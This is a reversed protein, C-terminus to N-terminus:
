AKVTDSALAALEDLQDQAMGRSWEDVKDGDMNQMLMKVIEGLVWKEIKAGFLRDKLWALIGCNTILVTAGSSHDGVAAICATRYVVRVIDDQVKRPLAPSWTLSLLREYVGRSRLLSIDTNTVIACSLWQTVWAAETWYVSTEHLINTDPQELLTKNLWYDALKHPKWSPDKLLFRNLKPYMIHTPDGALIKLAHTAFSGVLYPLSSESITTEKRVTELLEGFLLSLQPKAEHNSTTLIQSISQISTFAQHRVEPYQSCLCLILKELHGDQILEEIGLNRWRQLEPRNDSESPPPTLLDPNEIVQSKSTVDKTPLGAVQVPLAPAKPIKVAGKPVSPLKNDGDEIRARIKRITDTDEGIKSLAHLYRALWMLFNDQADVPLRSIFASQEMCAISMLSIPLNETEGTLGDLIDLYAIPRRVIRSTCEEIFAYVEDSAEFDDSPSLSALLADVASKDTTAQLIGRGAILLALLQRAETRSAPSIAQNNCYMLLTTFPLQPQSQKQWWYPGTSHRALRLLHQLQLDQIPDSLSATRSYATSRQLHSTLTVAIDATDEGVSDPITDVYIQRLRLYAEKLLHQDDTCAKSAQVIDKMTPLRQQIEFTIDRAADRYAAADGNHQSADELMRLVKALKRISAIMIQLSLHSVLSSNQNLCRTLVKQTLPAPLVNEVMTTVSPPTRKYTTAAGFHAPIAIGVLPFFYSAFGIWTNTLKPDMSLTGALQISYHSVLEPAARFTALILNREDLDAHPRLSMIFKSLIQNRAMNSQRSIDERDERDGEDGNAHFAYWSSPLLVGLDQTTCLRNLFIFVQQRRTTPLTGELIQQEGMDARAADLVATLSRDSCIASKYKRPVDADQLIYTAVGKLIDRVVPLPDNKLHEFLTRFLNRFSAIQIKNQTPQYRLNALLYRVANSRVSQKRKDEDGTARHMKLNRDLFKTNFTSDQRAFVQAAFAGGDLSVMETLLRLCPSILREKHSDACIGRSLLRLHDKQLMAHCMTKAHSLLDLHNSLTRLLLALLSSISFFLADNTTEAAYSWAQLLVPMFVTPTDASAKTMTTLLDRLIALRTTKRTQDDKTDYLINDLFTKFKQIGAFLASIDDQRFVLLSELQGATQIDDTEDLEDVRRRKTGELDQPGPVTTEALRKM